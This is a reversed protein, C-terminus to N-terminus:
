KSLFIETESRRRLVASKNWSKAYKADGLGKHWLQFITIDFHVECVPTDFTDEELQIIKTESSKM